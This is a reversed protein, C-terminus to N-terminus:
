SGEGLVSDHRPPDSAHVSSGAGSSTSDLNRTSHEASQLYHNINNATSNHTSNLTNSSQSVLISQVKKARKSTRTGNDEEDSDSRNSKKTNFTSVSDADTSRQYLFDNTVTSINNIQVEVQTDVWPAFTISEAEIADLEVSEPTIARMQDPDWPAEQAKRVAEINIMDYVADGYCWHLFSPLSSIYEQAEQALHTPYTLAHADQPWTVADVSTFIKIPENKEDFTRLTKLGMIIQRLSMKLSSQVRDIDNLDYSETVSLTALYKEQKNILHKIKQKIYGTSERRITPVMRLERHLLCQKRRSGFVKTLLSYTVEKEARPVEIHLARVYQKGKSGIMEKTSYSGQEKRVVAWIFAFTPKHSPTIEKLARITAEQLVEVDMKPSSWLMWYERVTDKHQLRKVYMQTDNDTSWGQLSARINSMPEDHGLWLQCWIHGESTLPNAGSFYRKFANIETPIKKPSPISTTKVASKYEYLVMTPDIIQVAKMWAGAKNMMEKVPDKHKKVKLKLTILTDNIRIHPRLSQQTLNSTSKTKRSTTEQRPNTNSEDDKSQDLHSAEDNVSDNTSVSENDSQDDQLVEYPNNTRSTTKTSKSTNHGTEPIEVQEVVTVSQSQNDDDKKKSKKVMSDSIKSQMLKSQAQARKRAKLVMMRVKEDPSLVQTAQNVNQQLASSPDQEEDFEATIATQGSKANDHTNTIPPTDVSMVSAHTSSNSMEESSSTTLSQTTARFPANLVKGIAKLEEDTTETDDDQHENSSEKDVEIIGYSSGDDEGDKPSSTNIKQQQSLKANKGARKKTPSVFTTVKTKLSGNRSTRKINNSVKPEPTMSRANRSRGRLRSQSQNPMTRQHQLHYKKITSVKNKWKCNTLFTFNIKRWGIIIDCQCCKEKTANSNYQIYKYYVSCYGRKHVRESTDKLNTQVCTPNYKKRPGYKRTKVNMYMNDRQILGIKIQTNKKDNVYLILNYYQIMTIEENKGKQDLISEFEKSHQSKIKPLVLIPKNYITDIYIEDCKLGAYSKQIFQTRQWTRKGMYNVYSTFDMQKYTHMEQLQFKNAKRYKECGQLLCIANRAEIHRSENLSVEKKDYQEKHIIPIKNMEGGAGILICKVSPFSKKSLNFKAPFQINLGDYDVTHARTKRRNKMVQSIRMIKYSNCSEDINKDSRREHTSKGQRSHVMKDICIQFWAFMKNRTGNINFKTFNHKNGMWGPVIVQSTYKSWRPLKKIIFSITIVMNHRSVNKEEDNDNQYLIAVSITIVFAHWYKMKEEVKTKGLLLIHYMKGSTIRIPDMADQSQICRKNSESLNEANRPLGIQDQQLINKMEKNHLTNTVGKLSYSKRYHPKEPMVNSKPRDGNEIKMVSFRGVCKSEQCCCRRNQYHKHNYYYENPLTVRIHNLLLEQRPYVIEGKLNIDNNQRLMEQNKKKLHPNLVKVNEKSTYKLNKEQNQQHYKHENNVQEEMNRNQCRKSWKRLIQCDFSYHPKQDNNVNHKTSKMMQETKDTSEIIYNSLIITCIIMMSQKHCKYNATDRENKAM